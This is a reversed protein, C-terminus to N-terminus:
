KPPVGTPNWNEADFNAYDKPSNIAKMVYGAAGELEYMREASQAFVEGGLDLQTWLRKIVREFSKGELRNDGEPASIVAHLHLSGGKSVEFVGCYRLCRTKKRRYDSGYAAINLRRLFQRVTSSRLEESIKVHPKFTLTIFYDDDTFASFLSDKTCERSRSLQLKLLQGYNPNLAPHKKPAAHRGTVPTQHM